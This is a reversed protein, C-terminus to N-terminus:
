SFVEDFDDVWNEAKKKVDGGKDGFAMVMQVPIEAGAPIELKWSVRAGSKAEQIDAPEPDFSFVTEASSNNDSIVITQGQSETSYFESAMILSDTVSIDKGNMGINDRVEKTEHLNKLFVGILDEKYQAGSNFRISPTPYWWQWDTDYRSIFGIVDQEITLYLIKATNNRLRVKWLIGNEEFVMRTTSHITLSDNKTRREAGYVSWKFESSLVTKGNVRMTGTHYGGSYPASAFWSLSTMDNNLIAQARQNRLTPKIALTDQSIWVSSMEELDPILEEVSKPEQIETCALLGIIWGFRAIRKM